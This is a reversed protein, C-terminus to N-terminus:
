ENIGEYVSEGPRYEPLFEWALPGNPPVAGDAPEKTQTLLTNVAVVLTSDVSAGGGSSGSGTNGSAGSGGSGSGPPIEVSCSSLIILALMLLGLLAVIIDHKKM